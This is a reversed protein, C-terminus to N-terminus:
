PMCAKFSLKRLIHIILKANIKQDTLKAIIRHYQSSCKKKYYPAGNIRGKDHNAGLTPASKM